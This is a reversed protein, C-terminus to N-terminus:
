ASHSRGTQGKRGARFDQRRHLTGEGSKGQGRDQRGQHCRTTFDLHHHKIETKKATADGANTSSAGGVLRQLEAVMKNLEEAQASLEESASASEEANAANQQTVQGDPGRGHHDARHGPDARQQRRRDRRGPRQGQPRRRRDRGPEQGSGPQDERRQRREQGVGRDTRRHEQRGRRSRQALNRVEEAVVAFGKGAEGARAAEVAANLALLNTQFAIEDITKIIKATQDSSKKIDEIAESMRGMAEAGKDASAKAAGALNKAQNANDANQKTMSAMEEVSSTTEEIAAAQESAGQALSQSAASVQGAATATQESGGALGAIIKRLSNAIGRTILWATLVGFVIAAASVSIIIVIARNNSAQVAPGLEDQKAKIGMKVDELSQAISPGLKNLTDTFDKDGSLIATVIKEFGDAYHQRTDAITGLLKHRDPDTVAKDVAAIDDKM